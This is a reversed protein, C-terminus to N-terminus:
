NGNRRDLLRDLKDNLAANGAEIKDNLAKTSETIRAHLNGIRGKIETLDTHTRDIHVSAVELRKDHEALRETQAEVKKALV